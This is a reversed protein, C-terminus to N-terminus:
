SVHLYVQVLDRAIPVSIHDAGGAHEVIVGTAIRPAVAPGGAPSAPAYSLFTSHALPGGSEATGTKGAVLVPFNGLLSYATGQPSTTPGLLAAQLATLHAPTLPLTGVVKVPYSTIAQGDPAVVATVLRPQLRQGNDAIAAAAVAIQLPTAQFFGQGIALNAADTPSWGGYGHQQMWAPDPVIGPNESNAPLGVIGTPAGYGFGKAMNPVLRPESTNLTMSVQWFVTDCSAALATRLSMPGRATPYWDHRVSTEGPVQFTATCNFTQDATISNELAAAFTTVKFVSGVPYAGAIARNVYPHDLANFRAAENPTFGLSLDNPNYIPNSALELVEGTLPDLSVVGSPHSLARMDSMAKQQLSIRITAHVDAGDATPRRAVTYYPTGYGQATLPVIDLEGGKTPRLQSEAWSEIGDRGISDTSEYYHATDNILDQDSVPAVYGTVAAADAGYPYVRGATTNVVVGDGALSALDASIQDHLQQPITRIPVFDSAAAGQYKQKLQSTSYDLDPALTQLLKTEDSIQGRVVGVVYVTEDAALKNGDRDLIKGRHGDQPFLHLRRQYQPDNPDDLHAFVLGPSWSVQWHGGERVLPLNIDQAIPGLRVTQMVVHVSVTATTPGTVRQPRPTAALAYVGAQLILQATRNVIYDHADTYNGGLIAADGFRSKSATSVLQYMAEYRGSTFDSLYNNAITCPSDQQDCGPLVSTTGQGLAAYLVGPVVIAIAVLALMAIMWRPVRRSQPPRPRLRTPLDKTIDPDVSPMPSSAVARSRPENGTTSAAPRVVQTPAEQTAPSPVPLRQDSAIGESPTVPEGRGSPQQPADGTGGSDVSM